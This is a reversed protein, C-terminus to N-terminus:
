LTSHSQQFGITEVIKGSFCGNPLHARTDVLLTVKLQQITLKTEHLTKLRSQPRGRLHRDRRCRQDPLLTVSLNLLVRWVEMNLRNFAKCLTSPSPLEELDTANRVRPMEILEDLLERHRIRGCRSVSCSSTNTSHTGDNRSSRPTVLSLEAPWTIHKNWSGSYVRNRSPRCETM